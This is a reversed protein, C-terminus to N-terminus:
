TFQGGWTLPKSAGSPLTGVPLNTMRCLLPRPTQLGQLELYAKQEGTGQHGPYSTHTPGPKTAGAEEESRYDSANDM